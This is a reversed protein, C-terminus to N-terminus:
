KQLEAKKPFGTLDSIKFHPSRPDHRNHIPAILTHGDADTHRFGVPTNEHLGQKRNDVLGPIAHTGFAYIRKSGRPILPM